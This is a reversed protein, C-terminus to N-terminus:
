RLYYFINKSTRKIIHGIYYKFTLLSKLILSHNFYISQIDKWEKIRRLSEKESVGEALFFSIPYNLKIVNKNLNIYQLTYEYDSAILYKENFFINLNKKYFFSQHNGIMGYKIYNARKSFHLYRKGSINYEVADGYILAPHNQEIIIKSIRKIINNNILFDGSNLFIIYEGRQIQLAKNMANYIGNDPESIWYSVIDLNNKIIDVSNDTSGGDIIIYEINNYTQTSVSQITKNLGISNNLNITAISIKPFLKNV